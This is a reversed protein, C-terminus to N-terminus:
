WNFFLMSGTIITGVLLAVSIHAIKKHLALNKTGTIKFRLLLLTCLFPIAFFLHTLILWPARDAFGGLRVKIEIFLVAFILSWLMGDAYWVHERKVDERYETSMGHGKDFLEKGDYVTLFFLALFIFATLFFGQDLLYFYESGM